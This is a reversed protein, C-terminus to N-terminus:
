GRYFVGGDVVCLDHYSVFAAILDVGTSFQMVLWVSTMILLLTAIFDFGYFIGGDVIRFSRFCPIPEYSFTPHQAANTDVSEDWCSQLPIDTHGKGRISIFQRYLGKEYPWEM